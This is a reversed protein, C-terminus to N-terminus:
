NGSHRNRRNGARSGTAGLFTHGGPLGKGVTTTRHHYRADIRSFIVGKGKIGTGFLRGHRQYDGAGGATPSVYAHSGPVGPGAAGVQAVKLILLEEHASGQSQSGAGVVKV